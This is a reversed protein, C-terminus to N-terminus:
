HRGERAYARTTEEASKAYEKVHDDNQPDLGFTIMNERQARSLTVTRGNSRRPQNGRDAGRDAFAPIPPRRTSGNRAGRTDRRDRRDGRDDDLDDDEDDDRRADRRGRRASPMAIESEMDPFKDLLRERLEEYHEPDNPDSGEDILQNDIVIAAQKEIEFEPDNWWDDNARMWKRAERTPGNGRNDPDGRQDVADRRDDRDQHQQQGLMAARKKSEFEGQAQAIKTTLEAQKKTDGKEYATELESQWAAIKSDHAAQDAESVGRNVRLSSNERKLDAVQRQWRAEQDAFRQNFSREMRGLRKSVSKSRDIFRRERPQEGDDGESGPLDDDADEDPEDAMRQIGDKSAGLDIEAFPKEQDTPAPKWQKGGKAKGGTTQTRAM